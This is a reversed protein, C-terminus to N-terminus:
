SVSLLSLSPCPPNTKYILTQCSESSKQLRAKWRLSSNDWGWLHAAASSRLFAVAKCVFICVWLNRRQPLQRLKWELRSCKALLLHLQPCGRNTFKNQKEAEELVQESWDGELVGSMRRRRKKKGGGETKELLLHYHSRRGFHQFGHWRRLPSRQQLWQFLSLCTCPSSPSLLLSLVLSPSSSFFLALPSLFFCSFPSSPLPFFLFFPFPVASAASVPHTTVLWPQINIALVPLVDGDSWETM